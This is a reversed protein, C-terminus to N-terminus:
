RLELFGKKFSDPYSFKMEKEDLEINVMGNEIATIVGDGFKKHKVLAGVKVGPFDSIVKPKSNSLSSKYESYETESITLLGNYLSKSLGAYKLCDAGVRYEREDDRKILYADHGKGACFHCEFKKDFRIKAIPIFSHGDTIAATHDTKVGM